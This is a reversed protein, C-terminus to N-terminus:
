LESITFHLVGYRDTELIAYTRKRNDQRPFTLSGPNCITVQRKEDLLPVHTHGYLAVNAGLELARKEIADLRNRNPFLHGHTLYITYDGFPVVSELPGGSYFVDCNGQVCYFPVGGLMMKVVVEQGQIDGLHFVCDFPHGENRQLIKALGTVDRHTDSIALGRM